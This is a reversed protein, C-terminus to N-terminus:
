VFAGFAAAAVVALACALACVGGVSVAVLVDSARSGGVGPVMTVRRLVYYAFSVVLFVGVAMWCAGYLAWDPVAGLVSPSVVM